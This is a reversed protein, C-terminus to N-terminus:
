MLASLFLLLYILTLKHSFRFARLVWIGDLVLILIDLAIHVLNTYWIRGIYAINPGIEWYQDLNLGDQFM